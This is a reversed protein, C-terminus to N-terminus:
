MFAGDDFVFVDAIVDGDILILTNAIARRKGGDGGNFLSNFADLFGDGAAGCNFESTGM